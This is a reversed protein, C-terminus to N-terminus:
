YLGVDCMAAAICNVAQFTESGDNSFLWISLANLTLGIPVTMGYTYSLTTREHPVQTTIFSYINEDVTVM